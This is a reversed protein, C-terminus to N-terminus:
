RKIPQFISFRSSVFLSLIRLSLDQVRTRSVFQFHWESAKTKRSVMVKPPRYIWCNKPGKQNVSFYRYLWVPFVFVTKSQLLSSPPMRTPSSPTRRWTRSSTSLDTRTSSATESTPPMRWCARPQFVRCSNCIALSLKATEDAFKLTGRFKAALYNMRCCAIALYLRFSKNIYGSINSNSSNFDNKIM